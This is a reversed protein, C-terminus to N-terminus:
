LNNNILQNAGVKPFGYSFARAPLFIKAVLMEVRGQGLFVSFSGLYGFYRSSSKNVQPFSFAIISFLPTSIPFYINSFLRKILQSNGMKSYLYTMLAFLNSIGFGIRGKNVRYFGV